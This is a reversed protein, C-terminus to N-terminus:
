HNNKGPPKTEDHFFRDARRDVFLTSTQSRGLMTTAFIELRGPMAALSSAM